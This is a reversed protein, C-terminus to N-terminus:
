TFALWRIQVPRMEDSGHFLGPNRELRQYKSPLVINYTMLQDMIHELFPQDRVIEKKFGRFFQLYIKHLITRIYSAM